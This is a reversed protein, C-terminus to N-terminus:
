SLKSFLSFFCIFLNKLVLAFHKKINFINELLYTFLLRFHVAKNNKEVTKLYLHWIKISSYSSFYLLVFNANFEDWFKLAITYCRIFLKEVHTWSPINIQRKRLSFKFILGLKQEHSPKLTIQNTFRIFFLFNFYLTYLEIWQCVPSDVKEILSEKKFRTSLWGSM